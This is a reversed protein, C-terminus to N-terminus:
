VRLADDHLPLIRPRTETEPEGEGDSVLPEELRPNKKKTAMESTSM